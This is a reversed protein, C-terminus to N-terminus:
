ATQRGTHDTGAAIRASRAVSTMGERNASVNLTMPSGCIASNAVKPPKAVRTRAPNPPLLRSLAMACRPSATAPLTRSTMPVATLPIVQSAASTV